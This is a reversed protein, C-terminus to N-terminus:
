LVYAYRLNFSCAVFQLGGYELLSTLFNPTHLLLGRSTGVLLERMGARIRRRAYAAQEGDDLGAAHPCQQRIFYGLDGFGQKHLMHAAPGGMLVLMICAFPCNWRFPKPFWSFADDVSM